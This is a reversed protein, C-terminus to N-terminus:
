LRLGTGISPITTIIILTISGTEIIGIPIILCILMLEVNNKFKEFIEPEAVVMYNDEEFPKYDGYYIYGIHKNRTNISFVQSDEAPEKKVIFSQPLSLSINAIKHTVFEQNKCCSFLIILLCNLLFFVYGTKLNVNKSSM